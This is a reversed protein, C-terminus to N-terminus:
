LFIFFFNGHFGKNKGEDDRKMLAQVRVKRKMTVVGATTGKEDGSEEGRVEVEFEELM